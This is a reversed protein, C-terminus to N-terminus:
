MFSICGLFCDRPAHAPIFSPKSLSHILDIILETATFNPLMSSFVSEAYAKLEGSHVSEPVSHIKINNCWSRDELDALKARVWQHNSDNADHADVLDNITAAFEGKEIHTVRDEVAILETNFHQMCSMMDSHLMSKLSILMDKLTTDLM